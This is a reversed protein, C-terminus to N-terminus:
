QVMQYYLNLVASKFDIGLIKDFLSVYLCYCACFSDTKNALSQIKYESHLYHDIRKIFFNSLKRPPACGYSDCYNENINLVWHTRRLM